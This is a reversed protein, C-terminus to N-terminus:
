ALDWRKEVLRRSLGLRVNWALHEVMEAPREDFAAAEALRWLVEEVTRELIRAAWVPSDDEPHGAERFIAESIRAAVEDVCRMEVM